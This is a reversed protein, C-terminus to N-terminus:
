LTTGADIVATQRCCKLARCTISDHKCSRYHLDKTINLLSIFSVLSSRLVGLLWLVQSDKINDLYHSIVKEQYQHCQRWPGPMSVDTLQQAGLFASRKRCSVRHLWAETLAGCEHKSEQNPCCCVCSWM